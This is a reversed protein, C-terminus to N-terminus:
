KLELLLLVLTYKCYDFLLVYPVDSSKIDLSTRGSTVLNVVCYKIVEKPDIKTEILSLQKQISVKGKCYGLSDCVM